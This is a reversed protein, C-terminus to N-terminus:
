LQSDGHRLALRNGIGFRRLDNTDNIFRRRDDRCSPFISVAHPCTVAKQASPFLDSSAVAYKKRCCHAQHEVDLM